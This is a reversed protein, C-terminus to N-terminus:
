SLPNPTHKSHHIALADIANPANNQEFSVTRQERKEDGNKGAVLLSDHTEGLRGIHLLLLEYMRHTLLNKSFSNRAETEFIDSIVRLKLIRIAALWGVKWNNSTWVMRRSRNFKNYHKQQPKFPLCPRECSIWNTSAEAFFFDTSISLWDFLLVLYLVIISFKILDM